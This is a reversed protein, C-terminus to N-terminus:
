AIAHDLMEQAEHPDIGFRCLAKIAEERTIEDACFEDCVRDIGDMWMEKVASM